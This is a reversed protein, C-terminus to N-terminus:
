VAAVDFVDCRVSRDKGSCGEGEGRRRGPEGRSGLSVKVTHTSERAGSVSAGWEVVWFRAKGGTQGEVTMAVHFELEVGEVPFQLEADAGQEVAASLETRVAAIAESLGIQTM